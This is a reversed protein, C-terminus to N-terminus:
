PTAGAAARLAAIVEEAASRDSWSAVSCPAIGLHRALAIQAQEGERGCESVLMLAAVTCAAGNSGFARGHSLDYQEIHDAAALLVERATM